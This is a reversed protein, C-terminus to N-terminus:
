APVEVYSFLEDVSVDQGKSKFVAVIDQATPLSPNRKGSEILSLHSPDVGASEAVQDLTMDLSKRLQRLRLIKRTRPKKNM